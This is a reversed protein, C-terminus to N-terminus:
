SESPPTVMSDQNNSSNKVLGGAKTDIELEDLYSKFYNVEFTSKRHSAKNEEIGQNISKSAGHIEAPKINKM